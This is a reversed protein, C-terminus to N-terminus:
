NVYYLKYSAIDLAKKAIEVAKEHPQAAPDNAERTVRGVCCRLLLRARADKKLVALFCRPGCGSCRLPM